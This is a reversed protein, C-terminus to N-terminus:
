FGETEKDIQKDKKTLANLQAKLSAIEDDKAKIEKSTKSNDKKKAEALEKKLKENEAKLADDASDNLKPSDVLEFEKLDILEKFRANKLLLEYVEDEVETIGTTAINGTDLYVRRRDFTFSRPLGKYQIDFAVAYRGKNFVYKM